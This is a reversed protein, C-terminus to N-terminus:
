LAAVKVFATASEAEETILPIVRDFSGSSKEFKEGGNRMQAAVKSFAKM